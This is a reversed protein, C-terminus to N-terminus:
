RIYLIRRFYIKESCNYRKRRGKNTLKVNYGQKDLLDCVMEECERPSFNFLIKPNEKVKRLLSNDVVTVDRIIEKPPVIVKNQPCIINSSFDVGNGYQYLFNSYKSYFQQIDSSKIDALIHSLVDKPTFEMNGM